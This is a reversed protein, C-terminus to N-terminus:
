EEDGLATAVAPTEERGAVLGDGDGRCGQQFLLIDLQQPTHVGRGEPLIPLPNGEVHKGVVVQRALAEKQLQLLQKGVEM